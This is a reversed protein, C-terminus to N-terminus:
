EKPRALPESLPSHRSQSIIHSQTATTSSNPEESVLQGFIDSAKKPDNKLLYLRGELMRGPFYKPRKELINGIYREAEGHNKEKLYFLAINEALRVDDPKIELADKLTSIAKEKQGTAYYFNATTIYLSTNGSDAEISKLYATEAKDNNGAKMHFNGLIIYLGADNPNEAITQQIHAEAKGYENKPRCACVSPQAHRGGETNDWPVQRAYLSFPTKFGGNVM